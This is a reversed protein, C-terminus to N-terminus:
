RFNYRLEDTDLDRTPVAHPNKERAALEALKADNWGQATDSLYGTIRRIRKIPSKFRVEIDYEGPNGECGTAIVETVEQGQEPSRKAAAEHVLSAVQSLEDPSLDISIQKINM